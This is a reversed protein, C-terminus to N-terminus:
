VCIATWFEPVYLKGIERKVNGFSM